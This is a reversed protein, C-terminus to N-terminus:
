KIYGRFQEETMITVDKAIKKMKEQFDRGLYEDKLTWGTDGCLVIIASEYGHKDISNQLKIIEFPIKEEATGEVSQYKLSILKGGKHLSVPRKRGKPIEVVGDLLIDLIHKKSTQFQTGIVVQSHVQGSYNENLFQEINNENVTGTTTDRSAHTAM